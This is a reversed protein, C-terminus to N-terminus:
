YFILNGFSFFFFDNIVKASSAVFVFIGSYNLHYPNLFDFIKTCALFGLAENLQYASAALELLLFVSLELEIPM